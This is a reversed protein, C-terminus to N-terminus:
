FVEHMKRCFNPRLAFQISERLLRFKSSKIEIDESVKVVKDYSVAFPLPNRIELSEKVESALGGKTRVGAGKL